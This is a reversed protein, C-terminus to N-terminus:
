AVPVSESVARLVIKREEETVPLDFGDFTDQSIDAGTLARYWCLALLYRGVGLSAHFTDRHVKEIGLRTAALMAAGAPIIGDASIKEAATAYASRVASFMEDSSSFGVNKLRDCGEEYAWTQHIWLKAHPCYKRVYEALAEIYPSYTEPKGSLPSAQQITVVDWQDSTLAQRISVSIGTMEGNFGFDYEARDDLMNIYHRYLTCGGIYLNVTKMNVGNHKAIAHLYRQADQSFSNGISLIKM